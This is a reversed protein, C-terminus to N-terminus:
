GSRSMPVFNVRLIMPSRVKKKALDGSAGVVVVSLAHALYNCDDKAAAHTM